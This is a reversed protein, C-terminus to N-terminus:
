HFIGYDFYIAENAPTKRLTIHDARNKRYGSFISASILYYSGIPEINKVHEAIKTIWVLFNILLVAALWIKMCKICM